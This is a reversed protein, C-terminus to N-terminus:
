SFCIILNLNKELHDGSVFFTDWAARTLKTQTQKTKPKNQTKELQDGSVLFTDWAWAARASKAWLSSFRIFFILKTSTVEFM